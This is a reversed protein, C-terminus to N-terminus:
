RRGTRFDWFRSAAPVPNGGRDTIDPSLVVEYWTRPRLRSRPRLTLEKGKAQVRAKVKKDGPGLLVATRKNVFMMAESFRVKVPGRRSVGKKSRSPSRHTLSPSAFDTSLVTTFAPGTDEFGDGDTDRDGVWNWDGGFARGKQRSDGNILAATIRSYQGPNDLVVRATGGRRMRKMVTVYSGGIADGTRGILAIAGRAGRPLNGVLKVRAADSPAVDV